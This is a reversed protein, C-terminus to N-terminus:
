RDGTGNQIIWKLTTTAPDFGDFELKTCHTLIVTMSLILILRKMFNERRTVTGVNTSRVKIELLRQLIVMLKQLGSMGMETVTDCIHVKVRGKKLKAM